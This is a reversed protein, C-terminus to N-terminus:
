GGSSAPAAGAGAAPPLPALLLRQMLASREQKQAASGQRHLLSEAVEYAYLLFARSRAEGIGFGLASFCQAIYAIRRDDVEDVARQATEDRRAWARIALEIRAARQAARGRFPLSILGEVLAHPDDASGEFHRIVQETAPQRWAELVGALLEDRSRFHWYFSGRTVELQRALVDVSIADAGKDVLTETAAAIWTERSLAARPAAPAPSTMSALM